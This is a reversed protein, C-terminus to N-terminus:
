RIHIIAYTYLQLMRAAVYTYIFIHVGYIPAIDYICCCIFIPYRILPGQEQFRRSDLPTFLMGVQPDEAQKLM